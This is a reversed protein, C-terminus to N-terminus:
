VRTISGYEVRIEEDSMDGAKPCEFLFGDLETLVGKHVGDVGGCLVCYDPEPLDDRIASIAYGVPQEKLEVYRFWRTIYDLTKGSSAIRSRMPDGVGKSRLFVVIEEQVTPEGVPTPQGVDKKKLESLSEKKISLTKITTPRNVSVGTPQGVSQSPIISFAVISIEFVEILKELTLVRLHEILTSRPMGFDRALQSMSTPELWDYNGKEPMWCHEMILCYTHFQRANLKKSNIVDTPIPVYNTM